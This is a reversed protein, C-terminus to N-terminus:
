QLKIRFILASATFPVLLSIHEKGYFNECIKKVKLFLKEAKAYNGTHYCFIGFGTQFEAYKKHKKKWTVRVIEKTELFIKKEDEYKGIELYLAGLDLRFNILDPQGYHVIVIVSSSGDWWFCGCMDHDTVCHRKFNTRNGAKKDKKAGRL